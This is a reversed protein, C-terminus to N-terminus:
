EENQKALNNKLAKLALNLETKRNEVIKGYVSKIDNYQADVTYESVTKEMEKYIVDPLDESIITEIANALMDVATDNKYFWLGNDKVVGNEDILWEPENEPMKGVVLNKCAMGEIAVHGFDTKDDIWLLISTKGLAKALEERSCGQIPFFSVWKYNPYKWFFPKIITNMDNSSKSLIGVILKKPENSPVFYEPISPRVVDIRMSPFWESIRRKLVESTTICDRVKLADFNGGASITDCLYNTNQLIVIRKCPMNKTQSMINTYIEPMFLFDSATMALKGNGIYHHPMKSYEEGMWEEVGVFEKENHLMHVDYGMKSLMKATEYIYALSGSPTGKTDYVLFYMKYKGKDLNDLSTELNSIAIQEKDKNM